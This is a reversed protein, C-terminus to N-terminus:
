EDRCAEKVVLHPSWLRAALVFLGQLKSAPVLRITQVVVFVEQYLSYHIGVDRGQGREIFLVLCVFVNLFGLTLFFWPHLATNM